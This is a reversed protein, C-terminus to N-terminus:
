ICLCYSAIELRIRVKVIPKFSINLISIIYTHICVYDARTLVMSAKVHSRSRFSMNAMNNYTFVVDLKRSLIFSEMLYFYCILLLLM